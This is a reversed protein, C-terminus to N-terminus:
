AAVAAPQAGVADDESDDPDDDATKTAFGYGLSGGSHGSLVQMSCRHRTMCPSPANSPCQKHIFKTGCASSSSLIAAHHLPASAEGMRCVAPVTHMAFKRLHDLLLAIIAHAPWCSLFTEFAM